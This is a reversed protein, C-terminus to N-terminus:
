WAATMYLIHYEEAFDWLKTAEGCQDVLELNAVTSGVGNGNAVLTGPDNHQWGCAYCKEQADYPDSVCAIEDCNNIGDMDADLSCDNPDASSTSANTAGGGVGNGGTAGSGGDGSANDNSSSSGGNTDPGAVGCAATFLLSCIVVPFREM